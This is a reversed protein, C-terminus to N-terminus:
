RPPFCVQSDGPRSNHPLAITIPPSDASGKRRKAPNPVYSNIMRESSSPHLVLNMEQTGDESWLDVTVLFFSTDIESHLNSILETSYLMAHSLGM